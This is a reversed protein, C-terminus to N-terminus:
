KHPAQIGPSRDLGRAYNKRAEEVAQEITVGRAEAVDDALDWIMGYMEEITEYVDGNSDIMSLTNKPNLLKGKKTVVHNYSGAM